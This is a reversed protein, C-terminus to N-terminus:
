QFVDDAQLECFCRIADLHEPILSIRFNEETLFVVAQNGVKDMSTVIGLIMSLYERDLKAKFRM